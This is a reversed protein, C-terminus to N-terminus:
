RLLLMRKTETFNGAKLRYLYVGSSFGSADWRVTYEGEPKRSDVLVAVEEGKINYVKLTVSSPEPITYRIETTPNFPNPYNQELKFDTLISIEKENVDSILSSRLILLSYLDSVYLYQNQIVIDSALVPTDYTDVLTPDEPNSINLIAVGVEGAGIYAYDGSLALGPGTYSNRIEYSDTMYPTAPDSVNIIRFIINDDGWIAFSDVTYIYDGSIAIGMTDGGDGPDFIGVSRPSLPDRVDVIELDRLAMANYVYHDRAVMDYFACGEILTLSGVILPACPDHIHIVFFNPEWYTRTSMYAYDGQVAVTRTYHEIDPRLMGVQEPEEPNSIDVIVLGSDRDAIYLYPGIQVMKNVCSPSDFTGLEVPTTPNQIDFIHIDMNYDSVLLYNEGMNIRWPSIDMINVFTLYASEMSVPASSTIRTDTQAHAMEALLLLFVMFRIDIKKMEIVGSM